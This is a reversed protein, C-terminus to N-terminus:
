VHHCIKLNDEAQGIQLFRNSDAYPNSTLAERIRAIVEHSKITLVSLPTIPISELQKKEDLYEDWAIQGLSWNKPNPSGLLTEIYKVFNHEALPLSRLRSTGAERSIPNVSPRSSSLKM